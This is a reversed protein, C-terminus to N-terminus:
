IFGSRVKVEPIQGQLSVLWPWKGEEFAAGGIVRKVQEPRLGKLEEELGTFILELFFFFFFCWQNSRLNLESSYKVRRSEQDNM